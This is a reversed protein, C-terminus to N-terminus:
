FACLVVDQCVILAVFNPDCLIHFVELCQSLGSIFTGYLRVKQCARVLDSALHTLHCGASTLESTTTVSRRPSTVVEARCSIKFLCLYQWLLWPLLILDCLNSDFLTDLGVGIRYMSDLVHHPKKRLQGHTGVGFTRKSIHFQTSVKAICMTRGWLSFIVKMDLRLSM